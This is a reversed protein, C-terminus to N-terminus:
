FMSRLKEVLARQDDTLQEPVSIMVRAYLDGFKDQQRMVPMGKGPIRLRRGSQTGAPIKMRIPRTMTPVEVDGGIMATFADVRIDTTLNDGDREFQADPEVQVVLYLDGAKGGSGPDGEGMMRVKTGTAAGAPINVRLSREGKTVLRTTGQYAERLSITVPQEIDQGAIPAGFPNFGVGSRRGSAANQGRGGFMQQFIDSFDFNSEGEQTYTYAGGGPAGSFGQQPNVTGFRDYMAKKDPDSLVEYAESVEQFKAKAGPDNPNADPHYKKALRRFAKKIEKEDASKAVGLTEYYNKPM